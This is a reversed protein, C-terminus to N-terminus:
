SGSKPVIKAVQSEIRAQSNNPGIGTSTVAFYNAQFYTPDMGSGAPVAGSVIFNVRVDATNTGVAVANDNPDMGTGTGPTPWSGVGITTYIASNTEAFTIGSDAVNLATDANRYNGAISLETMSTSTALAGLVSLLLLMWLTLILVIGKENNRMPDSSNQTSSRMAGGSTEAAKIESARM